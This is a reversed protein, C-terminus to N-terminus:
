PRCSDASSSVLCCVFRHRDIRCKAGPLGPREGLCRRHCARLEMAFVGSLLPCTDNRLHFFGNATNKENRLRRHHSTSIDFRGYPYTSSQLLFFNIRLTLIPSFKQHGSRKKVFERPSAINVCNKVWWIQTLFLM